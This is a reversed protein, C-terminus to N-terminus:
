VTLVEKRMDAFVAGMLREEPVSTDIKAIALDLWAIIDSPTEPSISEGVFAEITAKETADLRVKDGIVLM